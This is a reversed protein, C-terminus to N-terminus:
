KALAAELGPVHSAGEVVDVSSGEFDDGIPEYEGGLCGSLFAETIANFSKNNEPRAFGHGEDSYLVYTVPISKAKMAKVIQDSEAQKVRPDHAGQGILLPKTIADVRTLPSRETLLKRGEETKPDGVRSTFMALIPKWYPPITELLTILNSPGVIDVGCAFEDPTFTLGVLTAYGGYSGGMIAVQDASTIGANVAWKKADILDDHMRGAWEKDGANTFSKTFGTSGRFNVSLVGYGRSALWQHYPDYGWGDRAWPGGHVFLVLPVPTDPRGDRDADSALPLTLYSVLKLGDRAGIVVPHMPALSLGELRTNTTFLFEAKKAKRDYVYYKSPGADQYYVLMWKDDEKTQGLIALEGPDVTELYEFDAKVKDDIVEWRPKDYNIRAAVPEYTKGDFLVGSIGAKADEALTTKKNTKGDQAVLAATERGRSDLWYVTSGTRNFGLMSTALTDEQPITEVEKWGKKERLLVQMGGEPTATVAYRVKLDHDVGWGAIGRDNEVVLKRKGTSIEIEHLDHAAPDRDNLGVLMQDPHLDSMAVVEASIGELPTLDVVEATEPDVRFIHWNEDGKQDQVYLVHKGTRAWWAARIGRGADRTIAKAAEVDGAPGHWVNMVGDVPALFILQSGDPSLEGRVRDPNGFLVDRSVLDPNAHSATPEPAATKAVSGGCALTLSLLSLCLVHSRMM